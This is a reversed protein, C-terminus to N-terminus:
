KVEFIHWSVNGKRFSGVYAMGVGVMKMEFVKNPRVIIFRRIGIDDVDSTRVLASIILEDNEFIVNFVQARIPMDVIYSRQPDHENTFSRKYERIIFSNSEISQRAKRQERIGM